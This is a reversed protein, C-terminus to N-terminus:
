PKKGVFCHIADKNTNTLKDKVYVTTGINESMLASALADAAGKLRIAYESDIEIIVGVGIERGLVPLGPRAYILPPDPEIKGFLDPKPPRWWDLQVWNALTLASEIVPVLRWSEVDDPQVSMDFTQGAFPKLKEAIRNQQTFNLRRPSKYKELGAKAEISRADAAAIAARAKNSETQLEAIRENAKATEAVAKATDARAIAIEKNSEAISGKAQELDANAKATLSELEAIKVRSQERLTDWHHEKVNSTRVIVFTAIVGAILSVVLVLNAIDGWLTAAPLSMESFPWM